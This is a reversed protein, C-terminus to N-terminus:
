HLVVYASFVKEVSRACGRSDGFCHCIDIRAADRSSKGRVASRMHTQHFRSITRIGRFFLQATSLNKPQGRRAYTVALISESLNDLM